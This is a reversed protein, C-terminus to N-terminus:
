GNRLMKSGHRSRTTSTACWRTSAPRWRRMRPSPSLRVLPSPSLSVLRYRAPRVTRAPAGQSCSPATIKQRARLVTNSGVGIASAIARDSKMPNAIIAAEARKSPRVYPADCHCSGQGAAGCGSCVLEIKIPLNVVKATMLEHGGHHHHGAGPEPAGQRQGAQAHRHSLARAETSM